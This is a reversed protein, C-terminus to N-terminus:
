KAEGNGLRKVLSPSKQCGDRCVDSGGGYGADGFRDGVYRESYLADSDM